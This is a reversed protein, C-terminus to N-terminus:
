GLKVTSEEISIYLGNPDFMVLIKGMKCGGCCKLWMVLFLVSMQLNYILLKCVFHVKWVKM